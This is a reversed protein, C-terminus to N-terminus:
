FLNEGSLVLPIKAAGGLNKGGRSDLLWLLELNSFDRPGRGTAPRVFLPPLYSFFLM